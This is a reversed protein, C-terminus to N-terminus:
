TVVPAKINKLLELLFDWFKAVTAIEVYENTTHVESMTPGFSIIEAAPFMRNFVAGEIGAHVTKVKPEVGYLQQYVQKTTGLLPTDFRPEWAAYRNLIEAKGNAKELMETIKSQLEDMQSEDSSRFMCTVSHESGDMTMIGVNNSTEVLEENNPDMRIVGHPLAKILELITGQDDLDFVPEGSSHGLDELTVALNPELGQYEVKIKEVLQNFAEKASEVQDAPFMLVAEADRPIANM